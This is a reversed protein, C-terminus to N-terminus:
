FVDLIWKKLRAALSTKGPYYVLAGTRLGYMIAGVSTAYDEHKVIKSMLGEVGYRVSCEFANELYASVGKLRGGGGTVVITYNDDLYNPMSRLMLAVLEKMRAEVIQSLLLKKIDKKEGEKTTVEVYEQTSVAELNVDGFELKLREAEPISLKLCQAIDNTFTEGGVPLVFSKYLLHNKFVNVKTFRGGIDIFVCGNERNNDNLVVESTALGDYIMGNVTLELKKLVNYLSLITQSQTLVIHTHVELTEGFVGVPNQVLTGDVKYFLPMVHVMKQDTNQVVNKSRKICEMKDKESIQGSEEKSILLGVNHIFQMGHPPINVLVRAPKVGAQSEARKIAREIARFLEDSDEVIGKSLGASISNGCGKINIDGDADVECIAASIKSSGIDLGLVLNHKDVM